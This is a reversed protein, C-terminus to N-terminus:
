LELTKHQQNKCNKIQMTSILKYQKIIVILNFFMQLIPNQLMDNTAFITIQKM